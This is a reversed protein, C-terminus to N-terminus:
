QHAVPGLQVRGLRASPLAGRTKLATARDGGAAKSNKAFSTGFRLLLAIGLCEMCRESAFRVLRITHQWKDQRRRTAQSPQQRVACHLLLTLLADCSLCRAECVDGCLSPRSIFRGLMGPQPSIPCYVPAKAAGKQKVSRFCSQCRAFNVAIRRAEDKTLLKAASRPDDFFLRGNSDKVVFYTEGEEVSWPPPFRRGNM